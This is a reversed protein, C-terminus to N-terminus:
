KRRKFCNKLYIAVSSLLSRRRRKRRRKEEEEDNKAIENENTLYERERERYTQVYAYVCVKM